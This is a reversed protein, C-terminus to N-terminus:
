KRLSQAEKWAGAFLARAMAIQKDLEEHDTAHQPYDVKYIANMREVKQFTPDNEWRRLMILVEAVETRYLHGFSRYAPDTNFAYQEMSHLKQISENISTLCNNVEQLESRLTLFQPFHSM